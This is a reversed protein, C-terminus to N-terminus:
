RRVKERSRRLHEKGNGPYGEPLQVLFPTIARLIPDRATSCLLALEPQDAEDEEWLDRLSRFILLNPDLGYLERLRDFAIQRSKTSPKGLINQEVVAERYDAVTSNSAPVSALLNRLEELRISSSLHTGTPDVRLGFVTATRPVDQETDTM